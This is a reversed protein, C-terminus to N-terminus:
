WHILAIHLSFLLHAQSCSAAVPMASATMCAAAVVLAAAAGVPAASRAHLGSGALLSASFLILFPGRLAFCALTCPTALVTCCVTSSCGSSSCTRQMSQAHVLVALMNVWLPAQVHYLMTYYQMALVLICLLLSLVSSCAELLRLQLNKVGYESDFRM